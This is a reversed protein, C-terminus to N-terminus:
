FECSTSTKGVRDDFLWDDNFFSRRRSTAVDDRQDEQKECNACSALNKQVLLIQFPPLEDAAKEM